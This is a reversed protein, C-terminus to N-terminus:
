RPRGVAGPERLPGRHRAPPPHLLVGLLRHDHAAVRDSGPPRAGLIGAAIVMGQLNAALKRRWLGFACIATGGVMAELVDALDYGLALPAVLNSMSLFLMCSGASALISGALLANRAGHEAFVTVALATTAGLISLVIPLVASSWPVSAPLFPFYGALSLRFAVWVTGGLLTGALITRVMSIRCRQAGHPPLIHFSLLCGVVSAVAAALFLRADHASLFEAIMAAGGM